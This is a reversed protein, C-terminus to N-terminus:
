ITANISKTLSETKSSNDVGKRTELHVEVDDSKFDLHHDRHLSLLFVTKIELESILSSNIKTQLNIYFIVCNISFCTAKVSVTDGKM